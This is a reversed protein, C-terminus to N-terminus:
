SVQVNVTSSNANPTRQSVLDRGIKSLERML